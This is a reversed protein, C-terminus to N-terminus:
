PGRTMTLVVHLADWRGADTFINEPVPIADFRSDFPSRWQRAWGFDVYETSVFFKVFGSSTQEGPELTFEFAPEGAMGVGISGNRPLPGSQSNDPLYWPQITYRDPDFYLLYPFLDEDSNNRIVFGYKAGPQSRLRVRGNDVMNGGHGVSHDVRRAHYAGVLRHMELSVGRLPTSANRHVLMRNFQTISERLAPFGLEAICIGLDSPLCLAMAGHFDKQLARALNSLVRPRTTDSPSVISLGERYLKISEDVSHIDGEAMFREFLANAVNILALGRSSRPPAHCALTDRYLQIAENIDDPNKFRKFRETLADALSTAPHGQINSKEADGLTTAERLLEVARDIDARQFGSEFFRALLCKALKNLNEAHVGAPTGLDFLGAAYTQIAKDLHGSKSSQPPASQLSRRFYHEFTSVNDVIEPRNQLYLIYSWDAVAFTGRFKSPDKESFGDLITELRASFKEFDESSDFDFNQKGDGSLLSVIRCADVKLQYSSVDDIAAAIFAHTARSWAVFQRAREHTALNVLMQASYERMKLDDKQFLSNFFRLSPDSKSIADAGEGTSSLFRLRVLSSNSAGDSTAEDILLRVNSLDFLDLELIDKLGEAWSLEDRSGKELIDDWEKIHNSLIARPKYDKIFAVSAHIKQHPKIIRGKSFHPRWTVSHTDVYSLRRFPLFELLRWIGTLSETPHSNEIEEWKWEVNSARMKLGARLAENGMWLVPPAANDLRDNARSGGGVCPFRSETHNVEEAYSEGGRVYEPTFITTEPLTKGRVVGISSVSDWAGLFHIKVNERSFTTKFFKASKEKNYGKRVHRNLNAYLEYAFPIQEENGPLILGVKDIMAALARIQYAGRSFGFLFIRDGPEYHNSLWRYGAIVVKEFNWAIALDIAGDIGQKWYKLSRRSPRAYTGVGSNYYTFQTDDKIIRAYLEIVNTNQISTLSIDLNYGYQNSTGDFSIIINRGTGDTECHDCVRKRTSRVSETHSSLKFNTPSASHM